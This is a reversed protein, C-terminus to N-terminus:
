VWVETTRPPHAAWVIVTGGGDWANINYRSCQPPISPGGFDDSPLLGVWFTHEIMFLANDFASGIKLLKSINM